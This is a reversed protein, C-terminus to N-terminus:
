TGGACAPVGGDLISRIAAFQRGRETYIASLRVQAERLDNLVSMQERCAREWDEAKDTMERLRLRAEGLEITLSHVQQDREALQEILPKPVQNM